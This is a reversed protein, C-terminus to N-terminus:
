LDQVHISDKKLFEVFHEVDKPQMGSFFRLRGQIPM